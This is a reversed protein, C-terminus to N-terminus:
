VRDSDSITERRWLAVPLVCAFRRGRAVGERLRSEVGVSRRAALSRRCLQSLLFGLPALGTPGFRLAVPPPVALRRLEAVVGFLGKVWLKVSTGIVDNASSFRAVLL